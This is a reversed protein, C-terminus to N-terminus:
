RKKFFYLQRGLRGGLAIVDTFGLFPVFSFVYEVKFTEAGACMLWTDCQSGNDIKWPEFLELEVEM